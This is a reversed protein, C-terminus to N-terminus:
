ENDWPIVIKPPQPLQKGNDDQHIAELVRAKVDEKCHYSLFSDWWDGQAGGSQYRYQYSFRGAQNQVLRYEFKESRM